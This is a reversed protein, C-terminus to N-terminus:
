KILQLKREAKQLDDVSDIEFTDTSSLRRLKVYMDGLHRWVMQDWYLDTFNGNKIEEELKEVIFRGDKETWYSIGSLIYDDHGDEISFDTIRDNEDKKIVWEHTFEERLNCFCTSCEPDPDIINNNWYFDSEVVYAGPLLHRVLYMTYINNYVDYKDNHVIEVGYKGRMYEYHEHLYGTVLTIDHIGKENLYEIQREVMPTGNVKVLGKPRDETLPRLRTGMGAALIIARM